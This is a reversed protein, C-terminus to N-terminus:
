LKQSLESTQIFSGTEVTSHPNKGSFESNRVLDINGRSDQQFSGFNFGLDPADAM